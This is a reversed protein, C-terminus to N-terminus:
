APYGAKREVVGAAFRPGAPVGFVAELGEQAPGGARQGRLIHPEDLRHDVPDVVQGPRGLRRGPDM